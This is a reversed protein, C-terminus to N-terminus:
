AAGQLHPTDATDTVDLFTAVLTDVATRAAVRLTKHPVETIALNRDLATRFSTFEPIHPELVNLHIPTHAPDDVDGFDIAQLTQRWLRAESDSGTRTMIVALRKPDVGADILIKLSASTLTIDKGGPVVPFITFDADAALAATVQTARSPCDILVIDAASANVATIAADYTDPAHCFLQARGPHRRQREALWTSLSAGLVRHERDLDVAEVNFGEDALGLGIAAALTSKLVNGTQSIFAIILPM